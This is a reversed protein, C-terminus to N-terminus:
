KRLVNEAIATALSFVKFGFDDLIQQVNDDGENTGTLLGIIRTVADNRSENMREYIEDPDM